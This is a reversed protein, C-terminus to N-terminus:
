RSSCPAIKLLAGGYTSECVCSIEKVEPLPIKRFEAKVPGEATFVLLGGRDDSVPWDESPRGTKAFNTWCGAVANQIGETVGPEFSAEMYKANMFAFPIEACHWPTVGGYTPLQPAFVYNYTNACDAARRKELLQLCTTRIESDLGSDGEIVSPFLKGIAETREEKHGRFYVSSSFEGSNSGVIMPIAAANDRFGSRLVTNSFLEGDAVPAWIYAAGTEERFLELARGAARALHHYPLTEIRGITDKDLGLNEVMLNALLRANERSVRPDSSYCVPSQLIVKHYLGDACEAQM